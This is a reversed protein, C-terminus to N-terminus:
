HHSAPRYGAWQHTRSGPCQWFPDISVDLRGHSALGEGYSYSIREMLWQLFLVLAVSSCITSVINLILM